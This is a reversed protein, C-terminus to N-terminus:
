AWTSYRPAYPWGSFRDNRVNPCECAQIRLTHGFRTIGEKQNRRECHSRNPAGFSLVGVLSRQGGGPIGGAIWRDVAVKGWDAIRTLNLVLSRNGRRALRIVLGCCRSRGGTVRDVIVVVAVIVSRGRLLRVVLIVRVVAVRILGIVAALLHVRALRWWRKRFVALRRARAVVVEPRGAVPAVTGCSIVPNGTGPDHSRINIGEPRRRVPVEVAAAIPPVSTVPALVDTKIAADIVPEAVCAATVIAAVPVTAAEIVVAGNCVHIHGHNVVNIFAIHRVDAIGADAVVASGTADVNAGERRFKGYQALGPGRRNGSLNLVGLRRLIVAPLECRHVASARRRDRLSLRQRGVVARWRRAGSGGFLNSRHRYAFRSALGRSRCNCLTRARRVLGHRGLTCLILWGRELTFLGPAGSGFRARSRLRLGPRFGRCTLLRRPGLLGSRFKGALRRRRRRNLLLTRKGLFPRCRLLLTGHLFSTRNWGGSRSRFYPLRLSRRGPRYLCRAGRGLRAWDFLSTGRGFRTRGRFSARSRNRGRSWCGSRRGRAWRRNLRCTRSGSLSGRWGRTRFFFFLM